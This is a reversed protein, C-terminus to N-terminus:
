PRWVSLALPGGAGMPNTDWALAFRRGDPQSAALMGYSLPAPQDPGGGAPRVIVGSQVLSGHSGQGSLLQDGGGDTAFPVIGQPSRQTPGLAGGSDIQTSFVGAPEGWSVVGGGAPSAVADAHTANDGSPLRVAAGFRGDHLVGAFVPGPTNGVAVDPTCRGQVWGAVGRGEGALSLTFRLAPGRDLITKFRRRNPESRLVVADCEGAVYAAGRADFAPVAGISDYPTFVVAPKRLARRHRFSHGRARWAVVLNRSEASGDVWLLLVRGHPAVALRPQTIGSGLVRKSTWHGTITGYAAYLRGPGSRGGDNRRTNVIWAATIEGKRDIAVAIAGTSARRSSWIRRTRLRGNATRVTVFVSTGYSRPQAPGRAWAIATDGRANVAVATTASRTISTTQPASWEALADGACAFVVSMAAVAAVALRM